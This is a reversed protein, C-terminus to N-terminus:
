KFLNDFEEKLKKWTVPLSESVIQTASIVPMFNTDGDWRPVIHYHLHDDIGAGATRGINMGINMAHPNMVNRLVQVTKQITKQLDIMIEDSLKLLDATHAFPVVMVHGNNYPYKNMIVFCHKSRYTILYKEDENAAPFECFICGDTKDIESLIYEMRWPAWLQKM